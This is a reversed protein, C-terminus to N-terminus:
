KFMSYDDDDWIFIRICIIINFCPIKILLLFHRKGDCIDNDQIPIVICTEDGVIFTDAGSTSNYDRGDM